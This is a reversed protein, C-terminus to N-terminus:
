SGPWPRRGGPLAHLPDAPGPRASGARFVAARHEHTAPTGSQPAGGPRARHGQPGDAPRGAFATFGPLDTGVCGARARRPAPFRGLVEGVEPFAAAALAPQMLLHCDLLVELEAKWQPFRGVLEAPDVELDAEQRLCFEEYILRLRRRPGSTPIGSCPVARRYAARGAALRGGHGRGAALRALRLRAGFGRGRRVLDPRTETVPRGARCSM